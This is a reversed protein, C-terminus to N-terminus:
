VVLLVYASHATLVASLTGLIWFGVAISRAGKGYRIRMAFPMPAGLPPFREQKTSRYAVFCYWLSFAGMFCIWIFDIVRTLMMAIKYTHDVALTATSYDLLPEAGYGLGVFFVFILVLVIQFARSAPLVKEDM